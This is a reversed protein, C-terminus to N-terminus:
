FRRPSSRELERVQQREIELRRAQEREIRQREADERRRELEALRAAERERQLAVRDRHMGRQLEISDRHMSRQLEISDGHMGRVTELTHRHAEDARASQSARTTAAPHEALRRAQELRQTELREHELRLRLQERKHFSWAAYTALVVVGLMVLAARWSLYWSRAAEDYAAGTDDVLYQQRDYRLRLAPDALVEFAQKLFAAQAHAGSSRLVAAQKVYASKIAEAAANSPVGLLQYLTKAV